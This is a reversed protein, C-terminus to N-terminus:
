MIRLILNNSIINLNEKLKNQIDLSYILNNSEELIKKELLNYIVYGKYFKEEYKIVAIKQIIVKNRTHIIIYLNYPKLQLSGISSDSTKPPILEKKFEIIRSHVYDEMKIAKEKKEGYLFTKSQIEDYDYVEINLNYIPFEFTNKLTFLIKSSGDETNGFSGLEILPYSNGGSIYKENYESKEVLKNSLTEIKSNQEQIKKDRFELETNLKEREVKLESVEQKLTSIIETKDNYSTRAQGIALLIAGIGGFLILALGIFTLTNMKKM